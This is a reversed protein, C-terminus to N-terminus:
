RRSAGFGLWAMAIGVFAVMGSVFLPVPVGNVTIDWALVVRVFQLVAVIGFIAAALRSYNKPDMTNEKKHGGM